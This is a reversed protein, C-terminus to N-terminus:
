KTRWEITIPKKLLGNFVLKYDEDLDNSSFLRSGDSAFPSFKIIVNLYGDLQIYDEAYLGTVEIVRSFKGEKNELFLYSYGDELFIPYFPETNNELFLKFTIGNTFNTDAVVIEKSNTDLTFSTYNELYNKLHEYFEKDSYRKEIVEKRVIASVVNKNLLLVEVKVQKNSGTKYHKIIINCEDVSWSSINKELISVIDKKEVYKIGLCSSLNLVIIFGLIVKLIQKM